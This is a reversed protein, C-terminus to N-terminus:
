LGQPEPAGEAPLEGELRLVRMVVQGGAACLADELLPQGEVFVTIDVDEARAHPVIAELLPRAVPVDVVRFLPSGPFSPDFGAIGVCAGDRRAEVFVRGPLERAAQLEGPLLLLAPMEGRDPGLPGVVVDNTRPLGSIGTIPLRVAASSRTPQMGMAAYLSRAALNDPKVNLMWRSFGRARGRAAVAQLLARGLGQRRRQPDTMLHVVHWLAGRPRAWAVAAVHGAEDAVIVDDRVSGVFRERSPPGEPVALEQFLRAYADADDDTAARIQM